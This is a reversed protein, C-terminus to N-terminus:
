FLFNSVFLDFSIQINSNYRNIKCGFYFFFHSVISSNLMQFIGAHRYRFGTVTM